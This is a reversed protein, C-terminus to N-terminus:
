AVGIKPGVRSLQHFSEGHRLVERPRVGGGGRRGFVGVIRPRM